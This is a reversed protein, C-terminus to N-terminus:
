DSRWPASENKHVTKALFSWMHGANAYINEQFEPFTNDGTIHRNHRPESPYPNTLQTDIWAVASDIQAKGEESILHRSRALGPLLPEVLGYPMSTHCSICAQGEGSIQAM